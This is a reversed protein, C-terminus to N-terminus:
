IATNSKSSKGSGRMIAEIRSLEEARVRSMPPKKAPRSVESQVSRRDESEVSARFSEEQERPATLPIPVEYPGPSPTRPESLGICENSLSSAERITALIELSRKAIDDLEEDLFPDSPPFDMPDSPMESYKEEPVSSLPELRTTIAVVEEEKYEEAPEGEGEGSMKKTFYANLQDLDRMKQTHLARLDQDETGRLSEEMSQMKREIQSEYVSTRQPGTQSMSLTSWSKVQERPKVLEEYLNITPSIRLKVQGSSADGRLVHYWGEIEANIGPRVLQSMDIVAKGLFEEEFAENLPKHFLVLTIPCTRIAELDREQLPIFFSSTWGPCTSRLITATLGIEEDQWMVRIYPNPLGGSAPSSIRIASEITLLLKAIAPSPQPVPSFGGSISAKPSPEPSQPEIPKTEARYEQKEEQIEQMKGMEPRYDEKNLSLAMLVSGMYQGYINLLPFEGKVSSLLLPLLGVRAAGFVLEEEDRQLVVLELLATKTEIYSLVAPTITIDVQFRQNIDMLTDGSLPKSLIEALNLDSEHFLKVRMFAQIPQSFAVKQSRYYAFGRDINTIGTLFLTLLSYKPINMEVSTHRELLLESSRIVGPIQSTQEQSYQVICRIKGVIDSNLTQIATNKDAYLCLVRVLKGGEEALDLLEESPLVARGIVQTESRENRCLWITMGAVTTPMCDELKQGESITCSHVSKMELTQREEKSLLNSESLGDDLPFQLRLYASHNPLLKLVKCATLETLSVEFRHNINQTGKPFIGLIRLIDSHYIRRNTSKEGQSIFHEVLAAIEAPSFALKLDALLRSLSEVSLFGNGAADALRLEEDLDLGESALKQQLELVLTEPHIPPPPLSEVREPSKPPAIPQPSQPLAPATEKTDKRNLFATIDGISEVSDTVKAAPQEPSLLEIQTQRPEEILDTLSTAVERVKPVTVEPEEKQDGPGVTMQQMEHLRQVQAASGLAVCMQLYGVDRHQLMNHVARAEDVCIYPYVSGQIGVAGTEIAAALSALPVAVLGLLENESPSRKDWVEITLRGSRMKSLVQESAAIPTMMVHSFRQNESWNWLVPTTVFETELFPKYRVFPNRLSSDPRSDLNSLCAISLYMQYTKVDDLTASLPKAEIEEPKQAPSPVAPVATEPSPELKAEPLLELAVSLRAIEKIRPSPGRSNTKKTGASVPMLELVASYTPGPSLLLVEWMIDARGLEMERAKSDTALLRFRIAQDALAKIVGETFSVNHLSEHRFDFINDYGGKYNLKMVDSQVTLLPRLEANKKIQRQLTPTPLTCELAIVRDKVLSFDLVSLTTISIKLFKVSPLHLFTPPLPQLPAASVDPAEAPIFEEMDDEPPLLPDTAEEPIIDQLQESAFDVLPTSFDPVKASEEMRRKLSEGRQKLRELFDGETILKEEEPAKGVQGVTREPQVAAKAEAEVASQPREVRRVAAKPLKVVESLDPFAATPMEPPIYQEETSRTAYSNPIRRDESPKVPLNEDVEARLENVLFSSLLSKKVGGEQKWSIYDTQMCFDIEGLKVVNPKDSMIPFSGMVELNAFGFDSALNSRGRSEDKRLYLRLNVAFRGILRSTSDDVLDATLVRMDSLYKTFTQQNCRITYQATNSPYARYPEAPRLVVASTKEGYFRIRLSVLGYPASTELWAIRGVEINLLGYVKARVEPPLSPFRDLKDDM